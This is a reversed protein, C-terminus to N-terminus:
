TNPDCSTRISEDAYRQSDPKYGHLYHWRHHAPYAVARRIRRKCIVAGGSANPIPEIGTNDSM